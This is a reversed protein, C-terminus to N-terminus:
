PDRRRPDGFLSPAPSQDALLRLGVPAQGVVGSAGCPAADDRALRLSSRIPDAHELASTGRGAYASARRGRGSQARGRTVSGSRDPAGREGGSRRTSGSRRADSAIRAKAAQPGTGAPTHYSRECGSSLRSGTRPSAHVRRCPVVVAPASFSAPFPALPPLASSGRMRVLRDVRPQGEASARVLSFGRIRRRAARSPVREARPSGAGTARSAPAWARRM